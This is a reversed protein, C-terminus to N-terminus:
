RHSRDINAATLRSICILNDQEDNIKIEWIQTTKGVHIPKAIGTVWGGTVPHVHNANIVIGVIAAKDSDVCLEGAISGLTEALVVSAGGHLLGDPTRTRHDVPMKAKLYDDGIELFEIGVHEILTNKAREKLQDLTTLTKWLTM